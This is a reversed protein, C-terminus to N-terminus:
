LNTEYYYKGKLFELKKRKAKIEKYKNLLGCLKLPLKLFIFERCRPADLHKLNCLLMWFLGKFFEQFINKMKRIKVKSKDHVYEIRQNRVRYGKKLIRILLESDEGIAYPFIESYGGVKELVKRKIITINAPEAWEKLSVDHGIIKCLGSFIDDLRKFLPLDSIIVDYKHLLPLIKDIFNKPLYIDSDIFVIIDGSAMKWGLNRSKAPGSRKEKVIVFDAYNKAIKITNDTSCDDVVIIESNKLKQQKISKLCEEITRSSNYTPIVFTFKLNEDLKKM